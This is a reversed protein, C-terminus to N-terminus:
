LHHLAADASVHATSPSRRVSGCHVLLRELGRFSRSRRWATAERQVLELHPREAFLMRVAIKAEARALPAGICYHAGGGFSLHAREDRTVNFRDPDTFARPDRNASAIFVNIAEGKDFQHAFRHQDRPCIRALLPTPPEFRLAEEIAMDWLAPDQTLKQREEPHLLTLHVLNSILDTTTYHGAVVLNICLSIAELESLEKDEFCSVALDGLLGRGPAHRRAELERAFYAALARHAAIAGDRQQATALPHLENIVAESWTRFQGADDKEVGLIECIVKAPLPVALQEVIDAVGNEPLRAILDEAIAGIRPALADIRRQSFAHAILKRLRKHDPEDQLFLAPPLAALDDPLREAIQAHPSGPKAAASSVCLERDFLADRVDTYRTITQGFHPVEISPAAERLSAYIPHPNDIGEPGMLRRLLTNIPCGTM